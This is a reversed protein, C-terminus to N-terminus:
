RWIESAVAGVAAGVAVVAVAGTAPASAGPRQEQVRGWQRSFAIGERGPQLAQPLQTWGITWPAAPHPPLAPVSSGSVDGCAPAGVLATGVNESTRDLSGVNRPNTFHEIVKDSYKM